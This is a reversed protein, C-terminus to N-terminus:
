ATALQKFQIHITEGQDETIILLQPMGNDYLQMFSENNCAQVTVVLAQKQHPGTQQVEQILEPTQMGAAFPCFPVQPAPPPAPPPDYEYLLSPTM